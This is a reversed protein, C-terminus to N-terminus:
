PTVGAQRVEWTSRSYADGYDRPLQQELVKGADRILEAWRHNVDLKNAAWAFGIGFAWTFAVAGVAVVITPAAVGFAVAAATLVTSLAATAFIATLVAQAVDSLLTSSGRFNRRGAPRTYVRGLPLFSSINL